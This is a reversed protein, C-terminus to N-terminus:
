MCLLLLFTLLAFVGSLVFFSLFSSLSYVAFLVCWKRETVDKKHLFTAAFHTRCRSMLRCHVCKHRKKMRKKEEEVVEEEKEKKARSSSKAEGYEQSKQKHSRKAVTANTIKGSKLISSASCPEVFCFLFCFLVFLCFLCVFLLLYAFLCAFLCVLLLLDM